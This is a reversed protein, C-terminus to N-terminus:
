RGKRDALVKEREMTDMPKERSTSGYIFLAPVSWEVPLYRSRVLSEEERKPIRALARPKSRERKGRRKAREKERRRKKKIKGTREIRGAWAITKEVFERANLILESKRRIAAGFWGFKGPRGLRQM